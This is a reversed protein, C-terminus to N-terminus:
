RHPPERDFGAQSAKLTLRDSDLVELRDLDLWSSDPM